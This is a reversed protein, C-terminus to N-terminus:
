LMEEECDLEIRPGGDDRVGVIRLPRANWIARWGPRVDDRRNIFLRYSALTPASDFAVSQAAGTAIVSAWVEGEPSWSLVAGGLEDGVRVPRELAIRARQAGVRDIM